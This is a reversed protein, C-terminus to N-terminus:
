TFVNILLLWFKLHTILNQVFPILFEKKPSEWLHLDYCSTETLLFTGPQLSNFKSLQQGTQPKIKQVIELFKCLHWNSSAQCDKYLATIKIFSSHM